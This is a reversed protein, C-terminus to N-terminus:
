DIAIYYAGDTEYNQLYNLYLNKLIIINKEGNNRILIAGIEYDVIYAFIIFNQQRVPEFFFDRNKSLKLIKRKIDYIVIKTNSKALM